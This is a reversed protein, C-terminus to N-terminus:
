IVELGRLVYGHLRENTSRGWTLKCEVNIDAFRMILRTHSEDVDEMVGGQMLHPFMKAAEDKFAQKSNFYTYLFTDKIQMAVAEGIRMEM